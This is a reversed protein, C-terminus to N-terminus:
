VGAERLQERAAPPDDFRFSAANLELVDGNRRALWLADPQQLAVVAALRGRGSLTAGGQADVAFVEPAFVGPEFVEYLVNGLAGSILAAISGAFVGPVFVGPEFVELYLAAAGGAVIAARGLLQQELLVARGGVRIVVSASLLRRQLLAGLGGTTILTRGVLMPPTLLSGLGGIALLAAGRLTRAPSLSFELELRVQEPVGLSAVIKYYGPPVTAVEGVGGASAVLSAVRRNGSDVLAVTVCNAYRDESHRTVQLHLDTSATFAWVENSAEAEYGLRTRVRASGLLPLNLPKPRHLTGWGGDQDPKHRVSIANGRQRVALSPYPPPTRRLDDM